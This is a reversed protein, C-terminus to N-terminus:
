ATAYGRPSTQGALTRILRPVLVGHHGHGGHPQFERHHLGPELDLTRCKRAATGCGCRVDRAPHAARSEIGEDDLCAGATRRRVAIRSNRRLWLGALRGDATYPVVIRWYGVARHRRLHQTRGGCLLRRQRRQSFAGATATRRRPGAAMRRPQGRRHGVLLVGAHAPASRAAVCGRRAIPRQGPRRHSIATHSRRHHRRSHRRAFLRRRRPRRGRRHACM